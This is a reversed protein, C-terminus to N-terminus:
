VRQNTSVFEKHDLCSRPCLLYAQELHQAADRVRHQLLLFRGMFYHYTTREAKSFWRDLLSNDPLVYQEVYDLVKQMQKLQNLHLYCRFILNVIFVIGAKKTTPFSQRDMMKARLADLPVCIAKVRSAFYRGSAPAATALQRMDMRDMKPGYVFIRHVVSTWMSVFEGVSCLSCHAHLDTQGM